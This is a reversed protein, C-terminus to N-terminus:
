GTQEEVTRSTEEMSSAIQSSASSISDAMDKIRIVINAIEEVFKNYHFTLIYFEDESKVSLRQTLDGEGSTINNLPNQIIIKFLYNFGIIIIIVLVTCSVILLKLSSYASDNIAKEPAAMTIYWSDRDFELEALVTSTFYHTKVGRFNHIFHKKGSIINEVINEIENDSNRKLILSKDPHTLIRGREDTIIIHVTEGMHFGEVQTAALYPYMSTLLLLELLNRRM